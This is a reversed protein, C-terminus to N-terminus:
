IVVKAIMYIHLKVWINLNQPAWVQILLVVQSAKNLFICDGLDVAGGGEYSLKQLFHRPIWIKLVGEFHNQYSNPVVTNASGQCGESWWM